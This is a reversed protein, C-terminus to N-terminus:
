PVRGQLHSSKMNPLVFQVVFPRFDEPQGELHSFIVLVFVGFVTDVRTRSCTGGCSASEFPVTWCACCGGPFAGM